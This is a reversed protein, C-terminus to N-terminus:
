AGHVGRDYQVHWRHIGLCLQVDNQWEAWSQYLEFARWLRERIVIEIDNITLFWTKHILLWYFVIYWYVVEGYESRLIFVRFATLKTAENKNTTRAKKKLKLIRFRRTTVICSPVSKSIVTPSWLSYKVHCKNSMYKSFNRTSVNIEPMDNWVLYGYIQSSIMLSQWCCCVPM